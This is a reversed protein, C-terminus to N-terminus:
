KEKPQRLAYQLAMELATESTQRKVERRSGSFHNERVITGAEGTVAIYVLGVPKEPTGGGPGAIGTVAVGLDTQMVRRIGEAMEQAVQPSVAGFAALTKEQVGVLRHKIENAYSVISGPVYASSGPVDTLRSTILGGTCSEACAITKHNESLVQGLREEVAEENPTM